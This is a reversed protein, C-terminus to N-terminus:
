PLSFIYFFLHRRVDLFQHQPLVQTTDSFKKLLSQRNRSIEIWTLNIQSNRRTFNRLSILRPILFRWNKISVTFNKKKLFLLIESGLLCLNLMSLVEFSDHHTYKLVPPNSGVQRKTYFFRSCEFTVIWIRISSRHSYKANLVNWNSLNRDSIPWIWLYKNRNLFLWWYHFIISHFSLERWVEHTQHKSFNLEHAMTRRSTWPALARKNQVFLIEEWSTTNM